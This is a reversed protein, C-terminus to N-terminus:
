RVQKAEIVFRKSTSGLPYCTYMTIKYPVNPDRDRIDTQTPLVTRTSFVEYEYVTNNWKVYFKEGHKLEPLNYFHGGNTATYLFRHGAIVLNGPKSPDIDRTERWVGQNKGIVYVNRGEIIQANVGISPLILRNGVENDPKTSTNNQNKQQSIAQQYPAPDIKPRRFLFSFHPLYPMVLLVLSTLCVTLLFGVVIKQKLSRPKRHPRNWLARRQKITPKAM